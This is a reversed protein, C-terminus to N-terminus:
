PLESPAFSLSTLAIREAGNAWLPALELRACRTFDAKVYVDVTGAVLDCSVSYITGGIEGPPPVVSAARLVQAVRRLTPSADWAIMTKAANYRDCPWNGLSPDDLWFNTVVFGPTTRFVDTKGTYVAANGARDVLLAQTGPMSGAYDKGRLLALAEVVTACDTMLAREISGLPRYPGAPGRASAPSPLPESRPPTSFLDFYLGQDNIGQMPYWDALRNSMSPFRFGFFVAGHATATAATAWMAAGPVINDENGGVVVAGAGVLVVGTCAEAAVFAWALVLLTAGVVRSM